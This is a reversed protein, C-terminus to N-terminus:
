MAFGATVLSHDSLREGSDDAAITRWDVATLADSKYLIHDIRAPRHGVDGIWTHTEADQPERSDYADRWGQELMLRYGRDDTHSNFDALLITTRGAEVDPQLKALCVETMALPASADVHTTALSIPLETPIHTALVCLALRPIQNGFGTALELNPTPSLWWHHAREVRITSRRTLLAVESLRASLHSGYRQRLLVMTHHPLEATHTWVQFDTLREAIFGLQAPSVEQLGIVDAGSALMAQACAERRRDWPAVNANAIEDLLVNFTGV